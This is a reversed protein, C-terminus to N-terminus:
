INKMLILESNHVDPLIIETKNLILRNSGLTNWFRNLVLEKIVMLKLCKIWWTLSAIRDLIKLNTWIDWLTVLKKKNGSNNRNERSSVDLTDMMKVVTTEWFPPEWFCLRSCLLEWLSYMLKRRVSDKEMRNRDLLAWFKLPWLLKVDIKGSPM